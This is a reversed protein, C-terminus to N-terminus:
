KRRVLFYKGSKYNLTFQRENDDEFKARGRLRAQDFFVRSEETDLDDRLYRLAEYTDDDYTLYFGHLNVKKEKKEMNQGDM